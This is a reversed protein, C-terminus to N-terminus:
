YRVGLDTEYLSLCEFLLRNLWNIRFQLHSIGGLTCILMITLYIILNIDNCFFGVILSGHSPPTLRYMPLQLHSIVEM